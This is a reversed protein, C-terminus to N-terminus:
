ARPPRRALAALAQAITRKDRGIPANLAMDRVREARDFDGAQALLLTRALAGSFSQRDLRQAIQTHREADALRGEAIEVVALGGHGESFTDDLEVMHEFTTRASTLDGRVFHAWGVAAWSGLHDGFVEAGGQLYPLANDTQGMAMLALGKALAGRASQPNAALAQDSLEIADEFDDQRLALTALTSLGEHTPGAAQAYRAALEPEEADIAVVALASMLDTDLPADGSFQGGIELAEELRELHHLMQVKLAAARPVKKAVDDTLHELAAAHENLMALSWALNFRLPPSDAGSVLVDIFLSSADAHRGERLAVLGKLNVLDLPLPALDEHRNLLAAAEGWEGEESARRAADALLATNTPDHRLFALLRELTFEPLEASM